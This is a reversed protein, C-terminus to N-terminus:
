QKPWPRPPPVRPVDTHSKVLDTAALMSAYALNAARALADRDRSGPVDLEAFAADLLDRATRLSEPDLVRGRPSDVLERTEALGERLERVLSRLTEESYSAPDLVLPV